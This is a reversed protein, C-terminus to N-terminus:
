AIVQFPELDGLFATEKIDNDISTPLVDVSVTQADNTDHAPPAGKNADKAFHVNKRLGRLFRLTKANVIRNDPSDRLQGLFRETSKALEKAVIDQASPAMKKVLYSRLKQNEQQLMQLSQELDQQLAKKRQRSAKAHLRNREKRIEEEEEPCALSPIPLDNTSTVQKKNPSTRIATRKRKRNTDSADNAAGGESPSPSVSHHRPAIAVHATKPSIFSARLPLAGPTVSVRRANHTPSSMAATAPSTDCDDYAGSMADDFMKDLDFDMMNVFDASPEDNMLTALVGASNDQPQYSVASAAYMVSAAPHNEDDGDFQLSPLSVTPLLSSAYSSTM